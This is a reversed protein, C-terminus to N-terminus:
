NIAWGILSYFHILMTLSLFNRLFLFLLSVRNKTPTHYQDNKLIPHTFPLQNLNEFNELNASLRTTFIEFCRINTCTCSRKLFSIDNTVHLMSTLEYHLYKAKIQSPMRITRNKMYSILCIRLGFMSMCKNKRSVNTNSLIVM